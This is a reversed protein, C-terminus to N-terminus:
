GGLATCVLQDIDGWLVQHIGAEFSVHYPADFVVRGADQIVIGTGPDTMVFEKGADTRTGAIPDVTDTLVGSFRLTKGTVSNTDTETFRDHAVFKVPNGDADYFTEIWLTEEGQGGVTYAGCDLSVPYPIVGVDERTPPTAGAAATGVLGAALAVIAVAFARGRWSIRKM